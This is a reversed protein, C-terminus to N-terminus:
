QGVLAAACAATYRSSMAGRVLAAWGHVAAWGYAWCAAARWGGGRGAALAQRRAPERAEPGSRATGLKLVRVLPPGM